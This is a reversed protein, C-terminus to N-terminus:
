VTSGPPHDPLPAQIALGVRTEIVFWGRAWRRCRFKAFWPPQQQRVFAKMLSFSSREIKKSPDESTVALSIESYNRVHFVPRTTLSTTRTPLPIATHKLSAVMGNM